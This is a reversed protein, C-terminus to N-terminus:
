SGSRSQLPSCCGILPQSLSAPPLPPPPQSSPTKKVTLHCASWVCVCVCARVYVCRLRNYLQAQPLPRERPLIKGGVMIVQRLSPAPTHAHICTCKHMHLSINPLVPIFGCVCVCACSIAISLLPSPSPGSQCRRLCYVSGCISM